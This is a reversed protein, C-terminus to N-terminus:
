PRGRGRGEAAFARVKHSLKASIYTEGSASHPVSPQDAKRPGRGVWYEAAVTSAKLEGHDRTPASSPIEVFFAKSCFTKAPSGKQLWDRTTNRRLSLDLCELQNEDIVQM